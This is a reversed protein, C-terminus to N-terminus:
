QRSHISGQIYARAKMRHARAKYPAQLAHTQPKWRFFAHSKKTTRRTLWFFAQSAYFLHNPTQLTTNEATSSSDMRVPTRIKYTTFTPWTSYEDSVTAIESKGQVLQITSFYLGGHLFVSSFYLVLKTESTSKQPETLSVQDVSCSHNNNHHDVNLFQQLSFFLLLSRDFQDFDDDRVQKKKWEVNFVTQLLM